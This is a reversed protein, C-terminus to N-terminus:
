SVLMLRHGACWRWSWVPAKVAVPSGVAGGPDGSRGSRGCGCRGGSGVVGGVRPARARGVPAGGPRVLRVPTGGVWRRAPRCRRARGAWRRRARRQSPPAAAGEGRHFRPHTGVSAGRVVRRGVSRLADRRPWGARDLPPALRRGAARSRGPAAADLVPRPGSPVTVPATVPFRHCTPRVSLFLFSSAGPVSTPCPPRRPPRPPPPFRGPWACLLVGPVFLRAATRAASPSM